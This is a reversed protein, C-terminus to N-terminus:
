WRTSPTPETSSIVRCNSAASLQDFEPPRRTGPLNETSHDWRTKLLLRHPYAVHRLCFHGSLAFRFGARFGSCFGFRCGFCFGPGCCLCLGACLSSTSGGGFGFLGFLKGSLKHTVLEPAFVDVEMKEIAGDIKSQLNPNRRVFKRYAKKFKPTIKLKRETM